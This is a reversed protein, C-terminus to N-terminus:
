AKRGDNVSRKKPSRAGKKEDTAQWHQAGLVTLEEYRGSFETKWRTSEYIELYTQTASSSIGVTLSIQLKEYGKGALYAVRSFTQIYREVAALSHNIRRAVDVPEDGKLWHQIAVGRHSVGPGIDKVNGRTAVRIESNKLLWAVDRRITRVDSGLLQGVDEQSLLGGQERAEETIRLMRHRRLEVSGKKELVERDERDVLTLIVSQLACECIRKGAGETAAVCEYRLQGSRVPEDGPEQFYVEKVMDVLIESEWLSIGAGHVALNMLRQDQSKLRLREGQQAKLDNTSMIM